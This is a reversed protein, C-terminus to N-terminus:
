TTCVPGNFWREVNRGGQNGEPKESIFHARRSTILVALARDIEHAKRNRKFLDRIETRTMGAPTSRLANTIEDAVPDGLSDGFICEASQECYRWVALGAQLHVLKIETDMDLVAYILALRMVQATGRATITAALGNREATLESYIERWLKEAEADRNYTRVQGTTFYAIAAIRERIDKLDSDQLNGGSPLEKSRKVCAWLFRNAFGNATETSHLNQILEQKTIHGIISIHADTAKAPSNKTLSQLKGSEWAVRILASLTNGARETQRLVSCFESEVVLLRKDEVGSDIDEIEGTVPDIKQVPDRVAWILGESSSLGSVERALWKDGAPFGVFARRQSRYATGKRGNGTNGVLVVFINTYHRDGDIPWYCSRGILNGICLLFQILIAVLASESHPEITRVVDGALGHLAHEGLEDPWNENDRSYSKSSMLSPVSPRKPETHKSGVAGKRDAGRWASTITANAERDTLAPNCRRAFDLGMAVFESESVGPFRERVRYLLGNLTNNRNGSGEGNVSRVYNWAREADGAGDLPSPNDRKPEPIPEVPLLPLGNLIDALTAM